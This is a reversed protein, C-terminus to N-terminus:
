LMFKINIYLLEANRAPWKNQTETLRSFYVSTYYFVSRPLNLPFKPRETYAYACVMAAM